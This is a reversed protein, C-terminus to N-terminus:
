NTRFAFHISLTTESGFICIYGLSEGLSEYQFGCFYPIEASGNALAQSWENSSKANRSATLTPAYKRRCVSPPQSNSKFDDGSETENRNGCARMEPHFYTCKVYPAVHRHRGFSM